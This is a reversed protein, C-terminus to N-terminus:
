IYYTCYHIPFEFIDLRFLQIYFCMALDVSLQVSSSYCNIFSSIYRFALRRLGM